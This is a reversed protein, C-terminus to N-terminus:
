SQQTLIMVRTYSFQFLKTITHLCCASILIPMYSVSLTGGTVIYPDCSHTFDLLCYPSINLVEVM